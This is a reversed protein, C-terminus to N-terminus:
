RRAATTPPATSEVVLFDYYTPMAASQEEAATSDYDFIASELIRFHIKGPSPHKKAEPKEDHLTNVQQECQEPGTTTITSPTLERLMTAAAHRADNM